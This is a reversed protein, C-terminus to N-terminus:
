KCIFTRSGDGLVKGKQILVVPLSRLQEAALVLTAASDVVADPDDGREAKKAYKIASELDKCRSKSAQDKDYAHKLGSVGLCFKQQATQAWTPMNRGGNKILEGTLGECADDLGKFYADAVAEEAADKEGSSIKLWGKHVDTKILAPKGDADQTAVPQGVAASIAANRATWVAIAKDGWASANTSALLSGAVIFSSFVFRTIRPM